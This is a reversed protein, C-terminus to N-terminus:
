QVGLTFTEHLTIGGGSLIQSGTVDDRPTHSKFDTFTTTNARLVVVNVQLEAVQRGFNEM